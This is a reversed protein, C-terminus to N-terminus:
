IRRPSAEDRSQCEGDRQSVHVDVRCRDPDVAPPRDVEPWTALVLDGNGDIRLSAGPDVVGTGPPTPENVVAVAPQDVLEAPRAAVRRQASPESAPGHDDGVQHGAGGVLARRWELAAKGEALEM